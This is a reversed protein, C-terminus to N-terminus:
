QLWEERDDGPELDEGDEPDEGAVQHLVLDLQELLSVAYQIPLALVPEDGVKLGVCTEGDDTFVVGVM